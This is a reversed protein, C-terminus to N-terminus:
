SALEYSCELNEDAMQLVLGMFSITGLVLLRPGMGYWDVDDFRVQPWDSRDRVFSLHGDLGVHTAVRRQLELHAGPLDKDDPLCLLVQYDRTNFRGDAYALACAIGTREIAADLILDVRVSPIADSVLEHTSLRAPLRVTELVARLDPVRPRPRDVEHLLRDGAAIGLAANAANFGQLSRDLDFPPRPTTTVIQLAASGREHAVTEVLRQLRRPHSPTLLAATRRSVIGVKDRAVAETSGGLEELHEDLISTLAVVIPEFLSLEDSLGGRGAEVVAVDCSERVFYELGAVIYAGGPSLYGTGTAVEGLSLVAEGVRDLFARYSHPGIARGNIRLRERNSRFGPSTITGVKLGSAALLASAYTAATGKGKSGVVALLPLPAASLGLTERLANAREKSRRTHGRGAEWERFLPRERQREDTSAQTM